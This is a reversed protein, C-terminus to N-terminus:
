QHASLTFLIGSKVMAMMLVAVGATGAAGAGAGARIVARVAAM